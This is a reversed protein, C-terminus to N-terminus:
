VPGLYQRVAMGCATWGGVWRPWSPSTCCSTAATTWAVYWWMQIHQLTGARHRGVNAMIPKHVVGLLGVESLALTSGYQLSYRRAGVKAMIPEYVLQYSADDMGDKLPVNVTYGRRCRM